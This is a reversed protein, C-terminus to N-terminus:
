AAERYVRKFPVRAVPRNLDWGHGRKANISDWLEAFKVRVLDPSDVIGELFCDDPSIDQLNEARPDETLELLVRSAWRHMFISPRWHGDYDDCSGPYDAKYMVAADYASRVPWPDKKRIVEYSGHRAYVWTERVWLRDGKKRRLWRGVDVRRTVTKRGALIARGMPGSFLIPYEKM